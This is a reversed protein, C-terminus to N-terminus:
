GVAMLVHARHLCPNPPNTENAEETNRQLIKQAQSMTRCTCLMKDTNTPHIFSHVRLEKSNM